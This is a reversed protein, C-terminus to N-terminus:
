ARRSLDGCVLNAPVSEKIKKPPELKLGAMIAKFDDISKDLGLRSNHAREEAISSVTRGRYDHGPYISTLPPLTFLKERVSHFLKEASGQQFDTRGCGRILLADGSFVMGQFLFSICSDTHGPTAIVKLPMEGLTLVQGDRLFIDACDVGSHESLAVKSKTRRRIEGAGTIHDAHIHTELIYKLKLDLESILELDREVTELVPDIIVAERTSRDGLIYTYTSSESEFLQYFYIEAKMFIESQFKMAGSTEFQGKGM